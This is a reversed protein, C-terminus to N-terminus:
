KVSTAGEFLLLVMGRKHKVNVLFSTSAISFSIAKIRTSYDREM